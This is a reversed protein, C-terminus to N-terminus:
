EMDGPSFNRSSITTTFQCSACFAGAGQDCTRCSSKREQYPRRVGLGLARSCLGIAISARFRLAGFPQARLGGGGLAIDAREICAENFGCAAAFVGFCRRCRGAFAEADHLLLDGSFVRRAGAGAAREFGGHDGRGKGFTANFRAGHAGADDGARKTRNVLGFLAAAAFREGRRALVLGGDGRFLAYEGVRLGGDSLLAALDDVHQRLV